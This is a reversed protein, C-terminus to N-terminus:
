AATVLISLPRDSDVSFAWSCRFLVIAASFSAKLVPFEKAAASRLLAAGSLGNDEVDFRSAGM